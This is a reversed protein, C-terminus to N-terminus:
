EEYKQKLLWLANHAVNLVTLQGVGFPVPTIFCHKDEFSQMDVDGYMKGNVFNIGVDIIIAGHKIKTNHANIKHAKGIAVVIVDFESLDRIDSKSHFLTCTYDMNNLALFTPLGVLQSRGIIAVKKINKLITRRESLYELLKTVKQQDELNQTEKFLENKYDEMEVEIKELISFSLIDLIAGTTCPTLKFDREVLKCFNEQTFCDIDNKPNICKAIESQTLDKAPLQVIVGAHKNITCSCDIRNILDLKDEKSMTEDAKTLFTQFGIEELLKLKNSVYKNSEQNNGFQIIYVIPVCKKDKILKNLSEKISDKAGLKLDKIMHQLNYM